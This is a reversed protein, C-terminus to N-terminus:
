WWGIPWCEVVGLGTHLTTFTINCEANITRASTCATPQLFTSPELTRVSAENRNRRYMKIAAKVAVPNSDEAGLMLRARHVNNMTQHMYDLIM